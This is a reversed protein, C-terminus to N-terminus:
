LLQEPRVDLASALKKISGLSIKGGTEATSITPQAVKSLEALEKQSMFKKERYKKLKKIPRSM